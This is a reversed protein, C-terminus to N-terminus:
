EGQIHEVHVRGKRETVLEGRSNLWVLKIDLRPNCTVIYSQNVFKAVSDVAPSLAIREHQAGNTHVAFRLSLIVIIVQCLQSKFNKAVRSVHLELTPPM